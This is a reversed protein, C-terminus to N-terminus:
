EVMLKMWRNYEYAVLTFRYKKWSWKAAGSPEAAVTAAFAQRRGPTLYHLYVILPSASGPGVDKHSHSDFTMKFEPFSVTEGQKVTVVKGLEGKISAPKAHATLAPEVLALILTFIATSITKTMISKQGIGVRSVLGEGV